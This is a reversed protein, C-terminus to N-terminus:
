SQEGQLKLKVNGTAVWQERVDKHGPLPLGWRIERGCEEALWAALERAGTIGADDRDGVIVVRRGDCNDLVFRALWGRVLASGQASPRGIAFRGGSLMAATDSTGECVYVTGTESSEHPLILGRHGGKAATRFGDLHRYNIGVIRRRHDREPVIWRGGGVDAWGVRLSNLSQVSVGLENALAQVQQKRAPHKRSEQSLRKFKPDVEVNLNGSPVHEPAAPMAGASRACRLAYRTPYLHALSLGIANCISEADCRCGSFCHLLMTYDACETASM